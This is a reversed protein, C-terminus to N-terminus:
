QIRHTKRYSCVELVDYAKQIANREHSVCCQDVIRRKSHVAVMVAQCYLRRPMKVDKNILIEKNDM